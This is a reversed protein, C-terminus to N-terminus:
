LIPTLRMMYKLGSDREKRILEDLNYCIGPESTVCTFPAIEKGGCFLVLTPMGNFGLKECLNKDIDSDVWFFRAQSGYRAALREVLLTMNLSKGDVNKTCLFFIALPNDTKLLENFNGNGNDRFQPFTPKFEGM